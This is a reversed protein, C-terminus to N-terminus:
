TNPISEDVQSEKLQPLREAKRKMHKALTELARFGLLQLLTLPQLTPPTGQM